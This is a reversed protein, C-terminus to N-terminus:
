ARRRLWWWFALAALVGTLDAAVDVPDGDRGPLVRSQIVESVVAHAAFVALPWWHGVVVVALAAPVLFGFFHLVKDAHPFLEAAGPEAPAYLGYLHAALGVALALCLWARLRGAAAPQVTPM